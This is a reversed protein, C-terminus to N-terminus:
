CGMLRRLERVRDPALGAFEPIPYAALIKAGFMGPVVVALERAGPERRALVRANLATMEAVVKLSCDPHEALLGARAEKETPYIRPAPLKPTQTKDM